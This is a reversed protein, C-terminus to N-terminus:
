GGSSVGLQSAIADELERARSAKGAKAASRAAGRLANLRGPNSRLTAEYEVLAEADRGLEALLDALLERAPLLEGPTVPHKGVRDQLDAARRALDLAEDDNRQAHAVWAAAALRMAEVQQTWDYPGGIPKAELQARVGAIAEVASKAATADGLRAAGIARAFHTSALAYPFRDWPLVAKPEALSAADKWARQELAYRAPIAAVAYGAAFTPDVAANRLAREMVKKAEDLQGTQLYAYELYDLAHLADFPTANLKKKAAIANASAESDLNSRISEPWLGLRTFIHSPMHQAHPSAPAIEAYVRAAPLALDALEPYDFSHILYHVVGPHQPQSALEANLIEGARRQQALSADNAPATGLLALALFIRAESDDPFRKTLAEMRDRYAGARAGHPTKDADAYFAAIADIYARERETGAGISSARQAAERGATLEEPSPPAWLPHYYTMAVGWWAMGCRPDRAAVARFADGSLEYGFSHLLATARDFDAHVGADCSIPFHVTGLDSPAANDHDHQHEADQQAVVAPSGALALATLPCLAWRIKKSTM